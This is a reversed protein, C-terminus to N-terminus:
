EREQWTKNKITASSIPVDVVKDVKGRVVKGLTEKTIRVPEVVLEPVSFTRLCREYYGPDKQPLVFPKSVNGNADVYSFYTRTFSGHMRKSSFAIWRSNSSWSHWSESAASNMDLKRYVFARDTRERDLDIMYLDSSPQYVPFCSYDCMCFLLWRGDPSVRPELSSKGSQEASVVVEPEGWTDQKLDYRIRMLDYKVGEVVEQTIDEMQSTSWRIPASCYYLYTGDNSWAPYTELRDKKSLHESRKVTESEVDYYALASDIDIVDRYEIKRAHHFLQYVKNMSYIAIKGSPHWSTYGFKAGIKNVEGDNVILESSSYKGSRLGILMKDTKNNCFTHCNLCGGNFYTNDLVVSEAYNDLKRQYIGVDRWTRYGPHIKRYVVYGDIDEHAITNRITHYRLWKGDKGRCFVDIELQGGKNQELLPGWQGEDIIIKGTKSFVEILSGKVTRFRVCYLEGDERVIFNMPAINAPIVISSYDPYIRAERDVQVFDVINVSMDREFFAGIGVGIVVVIFVLMAYIYKNSM